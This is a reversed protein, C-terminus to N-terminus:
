VFPLDWIIAQKKQRFSHLLADTRLPRYPHLKLSSPKHNGRFLLTGACFFQILLKFVNRPGQQTLVTNAQVVIFFVKVFNLGKLATENKLVATFLQEKLLLIRM